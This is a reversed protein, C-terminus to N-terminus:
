VRLLKKIEEEDISQNIFAEADEKSIEVIDKMCSSCGYRYPSGEPEYPDFGIRNDFLESGGSVWRQNNKDFRLSNVGNDDEIFLRKTDGEDGLLLYKM